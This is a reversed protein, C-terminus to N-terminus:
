LICGKIACPSVGVVKSAARSEGTVASEMNLIQDGTILQEFDADGVYDM